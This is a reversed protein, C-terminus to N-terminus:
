LLPPHNTFLVSVSSLYAKNRRIRAKPNSKWMHMIRMWTAMKLNEHAINENRPSIVLLLTKPQYPAHISM